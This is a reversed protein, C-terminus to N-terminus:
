LCGMAYGTTASEQDFGSAWKIETQSVYPCDDRARPSASGFPYVRSYRYAVEMAEQFNTSAEIACESRYTEVWFPFNLRKAQHRLFREFGFTRAAKRTQAKPCDWTVEGDSIDVLQRSTAAFM